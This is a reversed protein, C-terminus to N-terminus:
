KHEKTVYVDTESTRGQRGGGAKLKRSTSRRSTRSAKRVAVAVRAHHLDRLPHDRRHEQMLLIAGALPIVTKFPHSRRARRGHHELARASAALERRRLPMDGAYTLAFVRPFSSCSTFLLSIGATAGTRPRFLGYLLTAGRVHGNKSLTYAGAMMFPTGHADPDDRRVDLRASPRARLASFVEWTM